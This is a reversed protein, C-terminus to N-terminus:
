LIRKVSQSISIFKFDNDISFIIDFANDFYLRYKEESEKLAQVAQKRWVGERALIKVQYELEEYTLKDNM